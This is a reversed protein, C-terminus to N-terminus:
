EVSGRMRGGMVGGARVEYAPPPDVVGDGGGVGAGTGSGEASRRGIPEGRRLVAPRVRGLEREVDRVIEARVRDSIGTGNGDRCLEPHLHISRHITAELERQEQRKKEKALASSCIAALLLIIFMPVIIGVMIQTLQKNDTYDYSYRKTLPHSTTHTPLPPM